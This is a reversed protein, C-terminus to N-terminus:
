AAAECPIGGQGATAKRQRAAWVVWPNHALVWLGVEIRVRKLGRASFRRLGRHAKADAFRLEITQGRQRYIAKAEPTAM